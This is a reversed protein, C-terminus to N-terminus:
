DYIFNSGSFLCSTKQGKPDQMVLSWPTAIKDLSAIMKGTVIERTIAVSGFIVSGTPPKWEVGYNCRYGIKSGGQNFRATFQFYNQEGAKLERGEVIFNKLKINSNSFGPLTFEQNTWIARCIRTEIPYSTPILRLEEALFTADDLKGSLM